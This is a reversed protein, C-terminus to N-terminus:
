SDPTGPPLLALADTYAIWLVAIVIVAVVAVIIWGRFSSGRHPEGAGDFSSPM